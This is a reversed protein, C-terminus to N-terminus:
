LLTFCFLAVNCPCIISHLLTDLLLTTDLALHACLTLRLATDLHLVTDTPACHWAFAHQWTPSSHLTLHSHLTICCLVVVSRAMALCWLTSTLVAMPLGLTTQTTSQFGTTWIFSQCSTLIKHANTSLLFVLLSHGIKASLFFMMLILVLLLVASNMDLANVWLLVSM